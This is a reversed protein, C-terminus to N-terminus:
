ENLGVVTKIKNDFMASLKKFVAQGSVGLILASLLTIPYINILDSRLWVLVCGIVLNLVTPIINTKFFYSWKFDPLTFVSNLQLLLYIFCGILVAFYYVM